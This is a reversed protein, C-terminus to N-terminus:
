RVGLERRISDTLTTMDAILKPISGVFAEPTNAHIKRKIEAICGRVKHIAQKVDEGSVLLAVAIACDLSLSVRQLTDVAEVKRNTWAPVAEPNTSQRAGAFTSDLLTLADQVAAIENIVKIFAGKKLEWQQQREWMEGSVKAEIEKTTQTVAAVQQLLKDIDEHTALNEGKKKLYGALFAGVFAAVLTTIGWRVLSELEMRRQM